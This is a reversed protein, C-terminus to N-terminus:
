VNRAGPEYWCHPDPMNYDGYYAYSMCAAGGNCLSKYKNSFECQRCKGKVNKARRRFEWLLDSKYWIDLFREELVNGIPIPLRRCLLVTGDALITAAALGIACANGLRRKGQQFRQIADQPDTLHFLCRNQVIIPKRNGNQREAEFEIEREHLYTLVRRVEQASLRSSELERARGVPVLRTVHLGTVGLKEVLEVIRPIDQLNQKHFTFSIITGLQTEDILTELGRVARKFSGKGRIADHVEPTAGDLSIQVSYLFPFYSNLKQAIKSTILTGNTMLIASIPHGESRKEKLYDLIRFINESLLPEGGTLGIVCNGLKESADAFDDIAKRAEYLSMEKIPQGSRYCHKCRLNCKDTIHLQLAFTAKQRDNSNGTHSM